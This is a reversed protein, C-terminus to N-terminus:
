FRPAASRHGGWRAPSRGLVRLDGIGARQAHQKVAMVVHLRGVRQVLPGGRGELGGHAVALKIGTACGVVLALDHAEEFRQPGVLFRAFFQGAGDGDQQFALFLAAAVVQGARDFAIAIAEIRLHDDDAVGGHPIRVGDGDGIGQAAQEIEINLQVAGAAVQVRAHVAAGDGVGGGDEGLHEGFEEVVVM